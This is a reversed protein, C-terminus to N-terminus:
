RAAFTTSRRVRGGIRSGHIAEHLRASRSHTVQSRLPSTLGVSTLLHLGSSACSRWSRREDAGRPIRAIDQSGSPGAFCAALGSWDPAGVEGSLQPMTAAQEPNATTM